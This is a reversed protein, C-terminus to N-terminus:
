PLRPEGFLEVANLWCVRRLWDEGLREHRGAFRALGELQHLYPYPITPFDSGFLVRDGLDAVRPLLDDPYPAELDFFDTFVMTTDLRINPHSEALALFEGYEPAGMHAVIATLRPHRDLLRGLHAPGTWENGVPGSGVHIVVPVGADEIIGFPEDLLPDDLAFEGVQTHLKFVEVGAGVLEQVYSAAEPEPYFAGSWLCEDVERAFAASWENLWTAVGPRHAYPLTPFRRVGFARLQEVRAEHSDRYRIPWPRGIKPGAQDFQAWVKDQLRDPLFHVHTDFLGPLGLDQWFTRTEEVPEHDRSREVSSSV